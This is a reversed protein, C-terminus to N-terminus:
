RDLPAYRRTRPARRARPVSRPLEAFRATALQLLEDRNPRVGRTRPAQKRGRGRVTRRRGIFRPARRSSTAGGRKRRLRGARSRVSRAEGGFSGNARSSRRDKEKRGRPALSSRGCRNLRLRRRAVDPRSDANRRVPMFRAARATSRDRRRGRRVRRRRRRGTRWPTAASGEPGGRRRFGSGCGNSSPSGIGIKRPWPACRGISSARDRGRDINLSLRGNWSPCAAGLKIAYGSRRKGCLARRKTGNPSAAGSRGRPSRGAARSACRSAEGSRRRTASGAQAPLRAARRTSRKSGGRSSSSGGIRGGSPIGSRSSGRWYSRSRRRIRGNKALPVRRSRMPKTGGRTGAPPPGIGNKGPRNRIGDRRKGPSTRTAKGNPGGEPAKGM